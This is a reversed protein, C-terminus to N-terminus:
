DEDPLPLVQPKTTEQITGLEASLRDKERKLLQESEQLQAQQQELTEKEKDLDGYDSQLKNLRKQTRDLQGYLAEQRRSIWTGATFGVLASVVIGVVAAMPIRAARSASPPVPPNPQDPM